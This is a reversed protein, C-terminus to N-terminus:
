LFEGDRVCQTSATDTDIVNVVATTNTTADELITKAVAGTFTPADNVPTVGISFTNTM